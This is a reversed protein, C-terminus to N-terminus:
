LEVMIKQTVKEESTAVTVYYTGNTDITSLNMRIEQRGVPLTKLEKKELIKGELNRITITVPGRNVLNFELFIQGDNPNPYVALKLSGVSQPNLEQTETPKSKSLIVKYIQASATSQTGDNTFFINKESSNIGGYIYGLLTPTTTLEDLKLVNNDYTPLSEIPIFEAGAGLYAPMEVPLKYEAMKGDLNRTVRAITKVFPVDNNQVLIGLSDYYQAIGGFFVTHMQKSAASYLPVHACHYHNYYQSFDNNVQYGASDINVCNLYPLDVDPKFVGSFATLGEQGNPMIQPAVNYDRRHLNTADVFSPLHTVKLNAGDDKVTFKRIANTYEQKFGPGHTPGMPNYRGEFYQGGTLYYTDYIKNLYGGTVAFKSDTVQRFFGKFDTGKQIAEIVKSVQIATLKAYTTHDNVTASYGYGGICYLQDDDQYFCMNTASLQEQIPVPLSTLPASWQKKLIPDVVILRNNHGALDFSAFPQRRHLGDFRGGVVLWKGDHQGVAYAQLGGLGDITFSEVTVQFPTSQAHTTLGVIIFLLVFFFKQIM